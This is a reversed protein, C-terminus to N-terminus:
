NTYIFVYYGIPDSSHATLLLLKYLILYETADWGVSKSRNWEESVM